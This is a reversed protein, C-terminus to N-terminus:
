KRVYWMRSLGRTVNPFKEYVAKIVGNHVGTYDVEIKDEDWKDDYLDHGLLMGGVKVKEWYNDLDKKVQSYRHDGDIFIFDFCNDELVRAFDDSCGKLISIYDRYPYLNKEFEGQINNGAFQTLRSGRGDFTDICWLHGNHDKLYDAIVMASGGCWSGIELVKLNDGQIWAKLDDSDASGLQDQSWMGGLGM